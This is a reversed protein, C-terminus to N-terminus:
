SNGTSFSWVICLASRPKQRTISTQIQESNNFWNSPEDFRSIEKRCPWSDKRIVNASVSKKRVGLWKSDVPLYNNETPLPMQASIHINFYPYPEGHERM